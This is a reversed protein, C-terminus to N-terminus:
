SHTTNKHNRNIYSVFFLFCFRPFVTQLIEVHDKDATQYLLASNELVLKKSTTRFSRCKGFFCNRPVHKLVAAETSFSEM